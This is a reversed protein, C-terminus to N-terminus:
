GNCTLQFTYRPDRLTRGVIGEIALLQQETLDYGEIGHQVETWGMIKALDGAYSESVEIKFLLFETENDFAELFYRM